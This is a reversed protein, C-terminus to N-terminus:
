VSLCRGTAQEQHQPISVKITVYEPRAKQLHAYLSRIKASRRSRRADPPLILFHM